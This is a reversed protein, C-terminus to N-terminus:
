DAEAAPLDSATAGDPAWEPPEWGRPRAVAPLSEVLHYGTGPLNVIVGAEQLRRLDAPGVNAAACLPVQKMPGDSRLADSVRSARAAAWRCARSCFTPNQHEARYPNVAFDEGCTACEIVVAETDHGARERNYEAVCDNSCFRREDARHVWESFEDGCWECTLTERRRRSSMDRNGYACAKSCFKAEDARYRAVEFEDGCAQCVLTVRARRSPRPAGSNNYCETSCFRAEAARSPVAREVAGCVECTYTRKQGEDTLSYAGPVRSNEVWGRDALDALLDEAKARTVEAGRAVHPTKTFTQGDRDRCAIALLAATREDASISPPM